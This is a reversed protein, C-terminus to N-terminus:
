RYGWETVWERVSMVELADQSALFKYSFGLDFHFHFLDWRHFITWFQLICGQTTRIGEVQSFCLRSLCTNLAPTHQHWEGLRCRCLHRAWNLWHTELTRGSKENWIISKLSSTWISARNTTFACQVLPFTLYNIAYSFTHCTFRASLIGSSVNFAWRTPDLFDSSAKIWVRKTMESSSFSQGPCVKVITSTHGSEQWQLKWWWWWQWWASHQWLFTWSVRIRASVENLILVIKCFLSVIAITMKPHNDFSQTKPIM